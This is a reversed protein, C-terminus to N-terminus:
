YFRITEEISPKPHEFIIGPANIFVIGFTLLVALIYIVMFLQNLIEAALQWEDQITAMEQDESIQAAMLAIGKLDEQALDLKENEKPGEETDLFFLIFVVSVFFTSNLSFYFVFVLRLQVPAPQVFGPYSIWRILRSFM